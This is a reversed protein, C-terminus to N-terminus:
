GLQRGHLVGLDGLVLQAPHHMEVGQDPEVAGLGGVPEGGCGGGDIRHRQCPQDLLRGTGDPEGNGADVLAVWGPDEREAPLEVGSGDAGIACKVGALLAM